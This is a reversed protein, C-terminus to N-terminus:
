RIDELIKGVEKELDVTGDNEIIYRCHNKYFDDDPQSDMRAKIEEESIGDRKKLREIRLERPAIVGVLFECMDEIESGIIVAGDIACVPASVSLREEIEKKIYKHVIKNLIRLESEDSFVRGALKRRLLTGDEAFFDSGFHDFLERNAPKGPEVVEHSIFDGDFVTVGHKRFIDSLYGKGSGSPGTIGFLTKNVTM